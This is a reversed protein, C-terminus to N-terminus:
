GKLPCERGHDVLRRNIALVSDSGSELAYVYAHTLLFCAADIDGQAEKEDAARIYIEVLTKANGENLAQKFEEALGPM